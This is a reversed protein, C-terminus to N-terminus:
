FLVVEDDSPLPAELPPEYLLLTAKAKNFIRQNAPMVYIPINDQLGRAGYFDQIAYLLCRKCFQGIVGGQVVEAWYFKPTRHECKVCTMARKTDRQRRKERSGEDAKMVWPKKHSKAVGKYFARMLDYSVEWPDESPGDLAGALTVETPDGCDPCLGVPGIHLKYTM